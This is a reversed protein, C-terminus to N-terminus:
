LFFNLKLSNQLNLITDFSLLSTEQLLIELKVYYKRVGAATVYDVVNNPFRINKNLYPSSSTQIYERSKTVIGVQLADYVALTSKFETQLERHMGDLTM